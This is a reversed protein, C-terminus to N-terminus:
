IGRSGSSPNCFKSLSFDFSRFRVGLKSCSPDSVLYPRRRHRDDRVKFCDLFCGMARSVSRDLFGVLSRCLFGLERRLQSCIM